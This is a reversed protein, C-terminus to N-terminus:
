TQCRPDEGSGRSRTEDGQNGREPTPAPEQVSQTRLGLSPLKRRDVCLTPALVGVRSRPLSHDRDNSFHEILLQSTEKPKDHLVWHTAESFTVLRGEDCLGVSLPAMEYSMYPDQQGWLVLTPVRVRPSEASPGSPRFNARYWGLMATIAGPQTWASRYREREQETLDDPMASMLLRWNDARVVREPLRPLQFFFAYWSKIVQSLHSRLYSGMVAPHPGNAIAARRVREPHRLALNWAVMAGWDHGALSFRDVGLADALGLVDAVLAPMRYSAVGPPKDSLNYGRQDPAIVRFGARALADIQAEWGFWAEPFGHLLFVPEGDVPGALVTHLHIGNTPLTESTLAM